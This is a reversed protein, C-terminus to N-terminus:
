GGGREGPTGRAPRRKRPAAAARPKASAEGRRVALQPNGSRIGSKEPNVRPARRNERDTDGDM